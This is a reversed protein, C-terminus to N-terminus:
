FTHAYAKKLSAKYDSSCSWRRQEINKHKERQQEKCKKGDMGVGIM